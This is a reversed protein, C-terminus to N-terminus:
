IGGEGVRYYLVVAGGRFTKTKVLDFVMRDNLGEFFRLGKGEVMPHICLQLEDMLGLKLLQVILSRSGVLVYKGSQKKLDQVEEGLGRKALTASKWDVNKLTRSFVIKPIGDIAAAFDNMSQEESPNELVTRWYEMLEYTTRGYLIAGGRGLLETYHRHVEEDPVGARHDCIGDLTMNM